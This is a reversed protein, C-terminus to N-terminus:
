DPEPLPAQGALCPDDRPTPSSGLGGSATVGLPRLLVPLIDRMSVVGIPEGLPNIVVIHRVGHRVMIGAAEGLTTTPTVWIPHPSTVAAVPAKPGLGEALGHALDRETVLGPPTGEVVLTSTSATRMRTAAEQLDCTPPVSVLARMTVEELPTRVQALVDKDVTM